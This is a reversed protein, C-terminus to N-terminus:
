AAEYSFLSLDPFGAVTRRSRIKRVCAGFHRPELTFFFSIFEYHVTKQFPKSATCCGMEAFVKRLVRTVRTNRLMPTRGSAGRTAILTLLRIHATRGDTRAADRFRFDDANEPVASIGAPKGDLMEAGPIHQFHRVWDTLFSFSPMRQSKTLMVLRSINTSFM